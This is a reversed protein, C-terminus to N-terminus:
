AVAIKSRTSYRDRPSVSRYSSVMTWATKDAFLARLLKNNLDHGTKYGKFHGILPHGVLSLDGVADLIKHRVFEDDYRLGEHNLVHHGDRSIVVANDLSGGKALGISRLAEIDDEFGFTRASAIESKFSEFSLIHSFHQDGIAESEFDIDMSIVFDDSPSLIAIKDGEQIKVKKLIKLAQRQADLAILGVKEISQLFPAASGDMVPVEMNDIDIMLNDIGIASLAAMLHEVTQVVGGKGNDLTTNMQTNTVNYWKAEIQSKSHSLDTRNFVIGHHVPAPKLVMSVTKGSHLGIGSCHIPYALTTQFQTVIEHDNDLTSSLPYVSKPM